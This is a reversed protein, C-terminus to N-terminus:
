SRVHTLRKHTSVSKRAPSLKMKAPENTHKRIEVYLDDGVGNQSVGDRGESTIRLTEGFLEERVNSALSSARQFSVNLRM